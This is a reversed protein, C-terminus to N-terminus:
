VPSSNGLGRSWRCIQPSPHLFIVVSDPFHDPTAPFTEAQGLAGECLLKPNFRAIDGIDFASAALRRQFQYSTQCIDQASYAGPHGNTGTAWYAHNDEGYCVFNGDGQMAARKVPMRWTNSAWIPPNPNADTRYLVLNGDDQMILRSDAAVLQDNVNLQQEANLRNAM